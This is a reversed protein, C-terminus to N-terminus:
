QRAPAPNRSLVRDGDDIIHPTVLILLDRKQESTRTVGFLRGIIPLDVLLPIGSKSSTVQTVTLGGIVATEGDGVLLQNDARQKGFIFGVDSSALQADSNEAHLKLLIQRNNTIHPTVSLIIGVEKLQVTARPVQNPQAGGGPQGQTSLDLVRIPIEQGVLIEAKRNDLTVISPEAQMDALRVEQLADLFTTLQFKGLTASFILKLAPNVVRANANAIASLANGGLLIRDGNIPSGGGFADPVGDGNTDVPKLTSPDIRPALQGFFQDTGTGLDYSIGLEEIDTRNVFIIKAKIAVQPTRVDLSKVYSLLDAMRSPTETILLTNTATDAAVAGRSYCSTRTNQPAEPVGGPTCDKALLGTLTGVLSAASAYNVAVLQTTVPESQQKAAINRYSDVTIIGSLADEAAALGQGQLIARLAVDWPQNKIEATITGAVDKGVVITRGSFSAFAAIVDRIDADQYTVTIRPQESMVTATGLRNSANARDYASSTSTINPDPSASNAPEDAEVPEAASSYTDSEAPRAQPAPAPSADATTSSGARAARAAADSSYWAAFAGPSGAVAVRVEGNSRSVEYPHAADMEIVVRVVGPKFQAARINTVGGRMVRDYRPAMDLTAGKLDVVIRFPAELMFDDVEISADVGIVVQARGANPVVSVARVTVTNGTAPAAAHGSAWEATLSGTASLLVVFASTITLLQKM